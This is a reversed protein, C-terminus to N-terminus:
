PAEPDFLAHGAHSAVIGLALAFDSQFSQVILGVAGLIALFALAGLCAQFTTIAGPRLGGLAGTYVLGSFLLLAGSIIRYVLRSRAVAGDSAISIEVPQGCRAFIVRETKKGREPLEVTISQTVYTEKRGPRPGLAPESRELHGLKVVVQQNM